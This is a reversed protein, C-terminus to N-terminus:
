ADPKALVGLVTGLAAVTIGIPAGEMHHTLAVVGAVLNVVGIGVVATRGWAKGLALGLAAILGIAGLVIGLEVLHKNVTKDTFTGLNMLGLVTTAVVAAWRIVPM